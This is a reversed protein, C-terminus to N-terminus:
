SAEAVAIVAELRSLAPGVTPHGYVRRVQTVDVRGARDRHGLQIAVDMESAGQDLLWTACYHRLGHFTGTVGVETTLSKYRRDRVTQTLKGGAPARWVRGLDPAHRLLAARGPEFVAVTRERPELQGALRKGYVVLRTGAELIDKTAVREVEEGRLGSYATFLICDAFHSWWGGRARAGSVLRGLEIPTPPVRPTSDDVVEVREWVNAELLGAQLAKRFMMRLYSVHSPHAVAWAQADIPRISTLPEDTHARTFPACMRRVHKETEYNRNGPYLDMWMASWEGVTVPGTPLKPRKM